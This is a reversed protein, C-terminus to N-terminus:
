HDFPLVAIRKQEMTKWRSIPFVYLNLSIPNCRIKDNYEIMYFATDGYKKVSFFM